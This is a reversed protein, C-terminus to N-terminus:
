RELQEVRRRISQITGDQLTAEIAVTGFFGRVQGTSLMERWARESQASKSMNAASKSVGAENASTGAVRASTIPM